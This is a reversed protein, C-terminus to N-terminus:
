AWIEVKMELPETGRFLQDAKEVPIKIFGSSRSASGM